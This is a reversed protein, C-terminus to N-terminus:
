KAPAEDKSGAQRTGDGAPRDAEQHGKNVRATAAQFAECLQNWPPGLGKMSETIQEPSDPLYKSSSDNM